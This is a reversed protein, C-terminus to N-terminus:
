RRARSFLRQQEIFGSGIRRQESILDPPVAELLAESQRLAEDAELAFLEEAQVEAVARDGAERQRLWAEAFSPHEIM